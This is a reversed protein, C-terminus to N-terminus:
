EIPIRRAFGAISFGTYEGKKIAGWLEDDMVKVTLMWTGAKVVANGVQAGGEPVIWSEVPSAGHNILAKHQLDINQFDMMWLHATKRIEDASYTDGQSDVVDPELVIGTVLRLDGNEDPDVKSVAKCFRKKTPDLVYTTQEDKGAIMKSVADALMSPDGSVGALHMDHGGVNAFGWCWRLGDDRSAMVHIQLDAKAAPAYGVVMKVEEPEGALEVMDGRVIFAQRWTKMERCYIVENGMVDEVYPTKHYSMEDGPDPPYADVLADRLAMELQRHSMPALAKRISGIAKDAKDFSNM